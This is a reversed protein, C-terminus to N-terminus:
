NVTNTDYTTHIYTCSVKQSGQDSPLILQLPLQHCQLLQVAHVISRRLLVDKGCLADMQSDHVRHSDSDYGPRVSVQLTARDAGLFSVSSGKRVIPFLVACNLEQYSYLFSQISCLCQGCAVCACVSIGGTVTVACSPTAKSPRKDKSGQVKTSPLEDQGDQFCIDYIRCGLSGEEGIQERTNTHTTHRKTATVPM